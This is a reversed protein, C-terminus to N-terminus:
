GFIKNLNVISLVNAISDYELDLEVNKINFKYKRTSTYGEVKKWQSLPPSCYPIYYIINDSLIAATYSLSSPSMLFVDAYVM